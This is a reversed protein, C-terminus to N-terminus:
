SHKEVLSRILMNVKERDESPLGKIAKTVSLPKVPMEKFITKLGTNKAFSMLRHIAKVVDEQHSDEAVKLEHLVYEHFLVAQPCYKSSDFRSIFESDFGKDNLIM